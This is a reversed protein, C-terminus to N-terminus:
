KEVGGMTLALIAKQVHLRNEAEDYIASHPGDAVEETVEEGRNFPMPHMFISKKETLNMLEQTCIWKRFRETHNQIIKKRKELNNENYFKKWPTWNVPYVVHAGECADRMDNVIEFNSGSEAANNKAAELIWPAVDFGKPHSLTVDMGFRSMLMINTHCESGLYGGFYRSYAWSLVFKKGKLNNFKEKMAMLDAMGQCPHYMGDEMNIVPKASHKAYLRLMRNGEGYPLEWRYYRVSLGDGYRSLVKVTDKISEAKIWTADSSLYEANGGLQTMGAVFSNRTRTSPNFFLMFLTKGKLLEHPKGKAQKSKLKSALGLINDLEKKSWEQCTIFHKGKM